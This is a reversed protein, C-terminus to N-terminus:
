RKLRAELNAISVDDLFTSNNFKTIVSFDVHEMRPRRSDNIFRKVYMFGNTSRYVRFVRGNVLHWGVVSAHAKIVSHNPNFKRMAQIFGDAADNTLAGNFWLVRASQLLSEPVQREESLQKIFDLQGKSVMGNM